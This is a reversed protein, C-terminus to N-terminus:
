LPEIDMAYSQKSTKAQSLAVHGYRGDTRIFNIITQRNAEPMQAGLIVGTICSAPLKFLHTANELPKGDKDTTITKDASQLANVMRWEEEYSWEESKIFMLAEVAKSPGSAALEQLSPFAPLQAMYRIPRPHNVKGNDGLPHNFFPQNTDLELVMGTHSAAYHSWMLKNSSNTTLSLVGFSDGLAKSFAEGFDLSSKNIGQRTKERGDSLTQALFQPDSSLRRRVYKKFAPFGGPFKARQASPIRKWEGAVDGILEKIDPDDFLPQLIEREIQEETALKEVNPRLEWPDNLGDRQTFRICENQLVDLREFTVYKFLRAPLAPFSNM